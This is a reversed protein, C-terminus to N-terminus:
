KRNNRFESAEAQIPGSSYKAYETHRGAYRPSFSSGGPLGWISGELINEQDVKSRALMSKSWAVWATLKASETLTVPEIAMGGKGSRSGDGGYDITYRLEHLVENRKTDWICFGISKAADNSLLLGVSTTYDLIKSDSIM